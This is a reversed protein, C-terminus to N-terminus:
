AFAPRERILRALCQERLDERPKCDEVVPLGNAAVDELVAALQDASERTQAAFARLGEAAEPRM